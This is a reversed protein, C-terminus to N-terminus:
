RGRKHGAKFAESALAQIKEAAELRHYWSQIGHLTLDTVMRNFTLESLGLGQVCRVKVHQYEIRCAAEIEEVTKTPDLPDIDIPM